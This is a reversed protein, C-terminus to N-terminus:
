SNPAVLDPFTQILRRLSEERSFGKEFIHGYHSQASHVFQQRADPSLSLLESLSELYEGGGQAMDGQLNDFNLVVFAIREYAPNLTGDSNIWAGPTTSSLFERTPETLETTAQTTGDTLATIAEFPAKTLDTTADTICGSLFMFLFLLIGHRLLFVPYSKRKETFVGEQRISYSSVRNGSLSGCPGRVNM